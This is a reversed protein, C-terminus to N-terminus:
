KVVFESSNLKATTEEDLCKEKYAWVDTAEAYDPTNKKRCLPCCLGGNIVTQSSVSQCYEVICNNHFVHHCKLAYVLDKDNKLSQLCFACDGINKPLKHKPIWATREETDM